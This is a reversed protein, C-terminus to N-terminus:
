ADILEPQDDPDTGYHGALHPREISSGEVDVNPLMRDLWAPLYWAKEKMLYMLAPILLMRVVFAYFIVAVALAFGMSKIIVNDMLTFGSFVSTMILAAATVVRASNRFGDVVTERFSAGHVHAERIRTVLFVLDGGAFGSAYSQNTAYARSVVPSGFVRDVHDM